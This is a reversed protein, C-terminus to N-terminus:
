VSTVFGAARLTTHTFCEHYGLFTIIKCHLPFLRSSRSALPTRSSQSVRASFGTLTDVLTDAQNGRCACRVDALLRRLAVLPTNASKCTLTSRHNSRCRTRNGSELLTSICRYLSLCGTLARSYRTPHTTPLACFVRSSCVALVAACSCMIILRAKICSHMRYDALVQAAARHGRGFCVCM